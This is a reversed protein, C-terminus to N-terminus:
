IFIFLLVKVLFSIHSAFLGSGFAPKRPELRPQTGTFRHGQIFSDPRIEPVPEELISPIAGIYEPTWAKHPKLHGTGWPIHESPLMTFLAPQLGLCIQSTSSHSPFGWGWSRSHEELSPQSVLGQTPRWQQWRQAGIACM